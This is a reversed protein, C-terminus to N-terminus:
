KGGVVKRIEHLKMLADIPTLNDIDLDLLRDRVDELAPDDLQFFSMQIGEESNTNSSGPLKIPDVKPGKHKKTNDGKHEELKVLVEEARRVLNRPMGALKAVHIGFSHNSGGAVLKRLFVIKGSVERVSVNFNRIRSFIAQMENLEHYHTAFLTLPRFKDLGHLYEAIAWAISVGDYTSTGRGIEDLLVLSRGTINNLISATENMEVMFTSEGSSINDSAGVRTFIRDLIGLEASRAPVFGGSQAMLSILATQRLLASKGSMNPGTIMLIQANDPDLTLDNAVYSEGLPLQREIVPHRGGVISIGHAEKMRPRTYGFDTAIESFSVLVDTEGIARANAILENTNLVTEAVLSEYLRQEMYLAKEKAELIRTELEKLEETIYREAQTLTQKRIWEEPVKDKHAHRVELYYGFVNNFGIKLSSIGTIETERLRIEELAKDSEFALSRIADLGKDVGAKIVAGKGVQTPAEEELEQTLRKLLSDCPSLRELTPILAEEGATVEAIMLVAELGRRVQVLERPNIRASSAKSALREM